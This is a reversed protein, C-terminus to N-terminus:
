APTPVSRGAGTLSNAVEELRLRQMVTALNLPMNNRLGDLLSVVDKGTNDKIQPDSGGALLATMTSTHMYGAAMHLPTYGTRADYWVVVCYRSSYSDCACQSERYDSRYM